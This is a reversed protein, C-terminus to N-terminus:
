GRRRAQARRKENEKRSLKRKPQASGQEGPRKTFTDKLGEAQGLQRVKEMVRQDREEILNYVTGERGARATRGARHIYNQIDKPMHYNVIRSVNEIDLGRAGLETSVLIRIEGARFRKITTRRKAQDMDGRYVGAQYGNEKLTAALKDCQERTNTFIITPEQSEGLLKELAPWRRGDEIRVNKTKLSQVTRGATETRIVNAGKFLTSMMERVKESETASFLALQIEDPCAEAIKESDPLFGEDMMQDAEDFVLIQVEDLHLDNRMLQMVRGPTGILIEFDGSVNKRAQELPGVALRVRLRTEHTFTKFVKAIQEALDRTPVLIVALPTGAGSVYDGEHERTKARHLLPLAYALTKGSGTESIGVVSEGALMRPVIHKQIETPETLRQDALTKQLSPLLDKFM